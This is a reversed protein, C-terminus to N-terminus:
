KDDISNEKRNLLEKILESDVLELQAAIDDTRQRIDLTPPRSVPADIDIGKEEMEEEAKEIKNEHDNIDDLCEFWTEDAIQNIEDEIEKNTLEERLEEVKEVLSNGGKVLKNNEDDLEKIRSNQEEITKQQSGLEKEKNRVIENLKEIKLEM